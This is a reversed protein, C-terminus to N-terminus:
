IRNEYDFEKNYNYTEFLEKEAKKRANIADDINDYAGLNKQRYDLEIQAVYKGYKNLHVGKVGLKNKPNLRRNMANQSPTVKRLNKKRNDFTNHNIHDIWVNTKSENMILRHLLIKNKCNYIYKGTLSLTYQKVIELDDKDVIVDVISKHKNVKIIAYDDYEVIENPEERNGYLKNAHIYEIKKRNAETKFCGCSKTHGNKLYASPCETISGCDCLCKFIVSGNGTRKDTKEIVTLRNFKDGIKIYSSSM